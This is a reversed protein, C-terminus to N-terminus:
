DATARGIKETARRTVACTAQIGSVRCSSESWKPMHAAGGRGPAGCTELKAGQRAAHQESKRLYAGAKRHNKHTRPSLGCRRPWRKERRAADGHWTSLKAASMQLKEPETNNQRGFTMYVRGDKWYHRLTKKREEAYKGRFISTEVCEWTNRVRM